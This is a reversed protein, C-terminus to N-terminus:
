FEKTFVIAGNVNYMYIKENFAFELDKQIYEILKDSQNNIYITLNKKDLLVNKVNGCKLFGVSYYFLTRENFKIKM